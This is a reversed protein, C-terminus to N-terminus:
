KKTKTLNQTAKLVITALIKKLEISEKILSELQEADINKETKQLIRLWYNSERMEKLSIRTKSIFDARSSGGKAEEYNAGPSTSSRILQHRIVQIDQNRPLTKTFKIISVSYNFLRQILDNKM